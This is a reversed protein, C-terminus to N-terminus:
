DDNEGEGSAIGGKNMYKDLPKRYDKNIKIRGEANIFSKTM